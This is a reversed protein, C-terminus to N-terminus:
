QNVVTKLQRLDLNQAFTGSATTNDIIVPTYELRTFNFIDGFEQIAETIESYDRVKTCNIYGKNFFIVYVFRRKYVCFNHKVTLIDCAPFTNNIKLDILNALSGNLKSIPPM